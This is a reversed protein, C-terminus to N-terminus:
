RKRPQRSPAFFKRILPIGLTFPTWLINKLLGSQREFREYIMDPEDKKAAVVATIYKLFDVGCKECTGGQRQQHHCSPCEYRLTAHCRPCFRAVERAAAGCKPCPITAMPAAAIPGGPGGPKGTPTGSM